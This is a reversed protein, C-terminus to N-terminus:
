WDEDAAEAAEILADQLRDDLRFEEEVLRDLVPAWDGLDERSLTLDDDFHPQVCHVTVKTIEEIGGGEAPYDWTAPVHRSVSFEINFEVYLNKIDIGYGWDCKIDDFM